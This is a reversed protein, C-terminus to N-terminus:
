KLSGRRFLMYFSYMTCCVVLGVAINLPLILGASLINGPTGPSIISHLHNAGTFFSYAKSLAYFSLSCLVVTKILRPSFVKATHEEGYVLAYLILGAGLIAGGSFGGGPSLHGNLLIYVGFVFIVPIIFRCVTRIIDDNIYHVLENETAKSPKRKQMLIMVACVSTYLVFSEGLTDFARYDLIMGAVANVAGTEEMGDELYRDSVENVTPAVASGQSPLYVTTLVLAGIIIICFIVGFVRYFLGSMRIETNEIGTMRKLKPEPYKEPKPLTEASLKEAIDLEGSYWKKLSSFLKM